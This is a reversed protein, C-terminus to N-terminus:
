KAIFKKGICIDDYGDSNVDGVSIGHVGQGYSSTGTGSSLEKGDWDVAWLFCNKYYGRQFIASPLKNTGDLYAACANFREARNCSTDGFFDSSATAATPFDVGSRSPSYWITHM